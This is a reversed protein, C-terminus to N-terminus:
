WDRMRAWLRCRRASGSRRVPACPGSWSCPTMALGFRARGVPPGRRHRQAAGDRECALAARGDAGTAVGLRGGRRHCDCIYNLRRRPSIPWTRAGSDRVWSLRCGTGTAPTPSFILSWDRGSVAYRGTRVQLDAARADGAGPARRRGELRPPAVADRPRGSDGSRGRIAGFRRRRTTFAGFRGRRHRSSHVLHPLARIAM